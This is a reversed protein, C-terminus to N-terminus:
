KRLMALSNWCLTSLEFCVHSMMSHQMNRTDYAKYAHKGATLMGSCICIKAEQEPNLMGMYSNTTLPMALGNLYCKEQTPPSPMLALLHKWQM